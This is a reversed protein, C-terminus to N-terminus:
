HRRLLLYNGNQDQMVMRGNRVEYRYTKTQGGQYPKWWLYSRDYGFTYDQYHDRDIYLRAINGRMVVVGGKDTEWTGDFYGRTSPAYQGYTGTQGWQTMPNYPMAYGGGPWGSPFGGMGPAGSMGPFGTMGPYGGFGGPSFGGPGFGNMGNMMPAGYSPMYPVGLPLRNRDILGFIEMMRLMAEIFPNDESYASYAHVASSPWLVSLTLLIILSHKKM